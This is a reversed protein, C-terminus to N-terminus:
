DFLEITHTIDVSCCSFFTDEQMKADWEGMHPCIKDHKLLEFM